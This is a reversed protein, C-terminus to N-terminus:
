VTRQSSLYISAVGWLQMAGWVLDVMDKAERINTGILGLIGADRDDKVVSAELKPLWMAYLDEVMPKVKSFYERHMSCEPSVLYDADYYDFPAQDCGHYFRYLDELVLTNMLAMKKRFASYQSINMHEYAIM